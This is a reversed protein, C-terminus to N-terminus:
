EVREVRGDWHVWLCLNRSLAKSRCMSGLEGAEVVLGKVSGNRYVAQLASTLARNAAGRHGITDVGRFGYFGYRRTAPEGPVSALVVTWAGARLNDPLGYLIRRATRACEVVRDNRVWTAASFFMILLLVASVGIAYTRPSWPQALLSGLGYSVLLGFFALPLYLYTESPHGSFALVPLLPLFIGSLLLVVAPRDVNRWNPKIRWLVVAVGLAVLAIVLGLILVIFRNLAIESPLPAHLVENAFVPDVPSLLATLYMLLNKAVVDPSPANGVVQGFGRPAFLNRLMIYIAVFLGSGALFVVVFPRDVLEGRRASWLAVLYACMLGFVTIATDYSLVSLWGSLLGGMLWLLRPERRTSIVFMVIALLFEAHAITSPWVAGVITQNALPHLGFLAAGVGAVWMSGFLLLGLVYVLGVNVLHFGLNRIRFVMPDGDGGWYTVLTVARNLPRYKYSNFHTTTFVRSPEQTDEFAARHVEIFDDYSCFYAGTVRGYVAVIGLSIATLLVLHGIMEQKM